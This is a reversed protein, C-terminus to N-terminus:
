LKFLMRYFGYINVYKYTIVKEFASIPAEYGCEEMLEDQAIEVLSKNKDVIGACLELTVGLSPPYKQMDPVEQNDPLCSFYAAPRFQKVMILKKRSINFVIIMVSMHARMLDWNNTKNDQVYEMRLPRLWPSDQPFPVFRIKSFNLMRERIRQNRQDLTEQSM